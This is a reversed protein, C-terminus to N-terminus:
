KGGRSLWGERIKPANLTIADDPSPAAETNETITNISSEDFVSDKIPIEEENKCQTEATEPEAPINKESTKAMLSQNAAVLLLVALPDFVVILMLIVFRVAAELDQKNDEGYLLAAVYRVPGVETQYQRVSTMLSFKEDELASIRSQSATITDQLQQREEQQAKRTAIAGTPGSIKNYETLVSVANDLQLVITDANDVQKQAQKIQQEIREVKAMNNASPAAQDLHAKSLFGFIGMSTILMLVIVALTLYSKLLLTSSKWNRYLWSATVLKGAELVIGMILIAGASAPFIAILGIISFYAATGAISLASLLTLISFLM